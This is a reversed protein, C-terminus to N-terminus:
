VNKELQVCSSSFAETENTAGLGVNRLFLLSFVFITISITMPLTKAIDFKIGFFTATRAILAVIVPCQIIIDSQGNSSKRSILSLYSSFVVPKCSIIVSNFPEVSVDIRFVKRYIHSVNCSVCAVHIGSSLLFCMIQTIWEGFVYIIQFFNKRSEFM